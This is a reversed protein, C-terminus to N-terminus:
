SKSGTVMYVVVLVKGVKSLMHTTTAARQEAEQMRLAHEALVEQRFMRMEKAEDEKARRDRDLSSRTRNVESSADTVKHQLLECRELAHYVHSQVSDIMRRAHTDLVTRLRKARDMKMQVREIRVAM